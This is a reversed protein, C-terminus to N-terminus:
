KIDVVMIKIKEAPMSPSVLEIEFEGPKQSSFPFSLTGNVMFIEHKIDTNSIQVFLTGSYNDLLADEYNLVKITIITEDIGDAKINDKTKSVSMKMKNILTSVTNPGITETRYITGNLNEYKIM